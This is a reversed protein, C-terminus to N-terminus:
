FHALILYGNKIFSMSHTVLFSSFVSQVQLATNDSAFLLQEWTDQASCLWGCLTDKKFETEFQPIEEEVLSHFDFQPVESQGGLQFEVPLFLPSNAPRGVVDGRFNQVTLTTM